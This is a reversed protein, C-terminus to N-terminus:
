GRALLFDALVRSFREPQELNSLHGAGPITTLRARPMARQMAEADAPPTVTDLEGAVILATCSIQPLRPTSDPREMMAVIAADIGAPDATEIMRRVHARLVPSAGDSLLKPLMDDAVARAGGAALRERMHTRGRRGDPTDAQARTDALVLGTFRHAAQRHLALAVYGGMSLGGITADEIELADLLAAVDAAYTDMSCRWTGEHNGGGHNGGGHNGGGHNGGEPPVESFRRRGFGRFDPAIFRWCDPVQELQPRWMEAHLPFAHLLVVPWGAGAELWTAEGRATRTKRADVRM